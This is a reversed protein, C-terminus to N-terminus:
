IYTSDLTEIDNIKMNTKSTFSSQARQIIGDEIMHLMKAIAVEHDHM